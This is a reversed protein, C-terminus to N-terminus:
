GCVTRYACDARSLWTHLLSIAIFNKAVLGGGGQDSRESRGISRDEQTIRGWVGTKESREALQWQNPKSLICFEGAGRGRNHTIVKALQLSRAKKTRAESLSRLSVHYCSVSTPSTWVLGVHLSVLAPLLSPPRPSSWSRGIAM